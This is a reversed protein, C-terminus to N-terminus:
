SLQVVFFIYVQLYYIYNIANRITIYESDNKNSNPILQSLRILALREEQYEKRIKDKKVSILSSRHYAPQYPSSQHRSRNRCQRRTSPRCHSPLPSSSSSTSINTM